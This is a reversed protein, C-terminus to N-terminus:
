ENQYEGMTKQKKDKIKRKIQHSRLSKSVITKDYPCVGKKRKWEPLRCMQTYGKHMFYDNCKGEKNNIEVFKCKM